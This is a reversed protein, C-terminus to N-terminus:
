NIGFVNNINELSENGVMIVFKGIDYGKLYPKTYFSTQENENCEGSFTLNGGLEKFYYFEKKIDESLSSDSISVTNSNSKVYDYTVNKDLESNFYIGYNSNVSFADILDNTYHVKYNSFDVSSEGFVVYDYYDEPLSNVESVSVVLCPSSMKNKITIKKRRNSENPLSYITKEIDKNLNVKIGTYRINSNNQKLYHSNLVLYDGYDLEFLNIGGNLYNYEVNNFTKSNENNSVNLFCCLNNNPLSFYKGNEIRCSSLSLYGGYIGFDYVNVVKYKDNDKDLFSDYIKLSEDRAKGNLTIIDSKNNAQSVADVIKLTLEFIFYCALCANIAILLGRVRKKSRVKQLLIEEDEKTTIEELM